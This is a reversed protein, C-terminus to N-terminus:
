QHNIVRGYTGGGGRKVTLKGKRAQDILLATKEPIVKMMDALSAEHIVSMESGFFAILKAITKPGVGPIFELPIHHIYPPREILGILQKGDSLDTIREAVGRTVANKGCFPCPLQYQQLYEGCNECITQYYKGLYPNLGYNKVIQRGEAHSIALKWESFTPAKLLMEQYERAIKPLSHADSNTLFTFRDLERLQSAMLTDSSLGLEVADILDPNFVESISKIVGRGYLSKHPTFIHAPIFLGSLEKIKEQVIRGNEYMRQTSLTINKVRNSLWSSFDKLNQLDAFYVLVHIPGQCYDDYIELESGLILTLGNKYLLGGGVQEHLKGLEILKELEEIVEPVHCDIVGIMDLGKSEKAVDLIASLTLSGAGTIKVPKGTETRGIHIHFDGFYSKMM